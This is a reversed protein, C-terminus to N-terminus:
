GADGRAGRSKNRFIGAPPEAARWLRLRMQGPVGGHGCRFVAGRM